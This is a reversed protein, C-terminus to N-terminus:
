EDKKEKKKKIISFNKKKLEPLVELIVTKIDFFSDEMGEISAWLSEHDEAREKGSPAEASGEAGEAGEDEEDWYDTDLSELGSVTHNLLQGLVVAGQEPVSEPSIKSAKLMGVFESLANHLEVFRNRLLGTEHDAFWNYDAAYLRFRRAIERELVPLCLSLTNIRVPFIRSLLPAPDAEKRFLADVICSDLVADTLPLGLHVFIEEVVSGPVTVMTMDWTKQPPIEQDAFWLRTEVGYPEIAVRSSWRLFGDMCVADTSFLRDQGLHWAFSLQEDIAVCPGALEFSRILCEEFYSRWSQEKQHDVASEPVTSIDFIGKAWDFVTAVVRDGPKFNVDWYVTRMDIVSVPFVAPDCYDTPSFLEANEENDLALYQPVYEDGFMAYHPYVEEPAVDLTLRGLEQGKYRFIIENPLIAPDYFPVLRSGPILIGTAIEEKTPVVVAPKGTFVGARSIWYEEDVDCTPNLYALQNFSLYDALEERAVHGSPEGLYELLGKITFPELSTQLFQTLKDETHERMKGLM